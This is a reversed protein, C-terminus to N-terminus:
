TRAPIFLTLSHMQTRGLSSSRKMRTRSGNPKHEALTWLRDERNTYGHFVALGRKPQVLNRAKKSWGLSLIVKNIRILAWRSYGGMRFASFTLLRGAEFLREGGDWGSSRIFELLFSGRPRLKRWLIKFLFRAKNSRRTKNNANITKNCFRDRICM